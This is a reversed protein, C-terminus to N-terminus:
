RPRHQYCHFCEEYLPLPAPAPVQVRFVHNELNIIAFPKQRYVKTPGERELWATTRELRRSDEQTSGLRPLM